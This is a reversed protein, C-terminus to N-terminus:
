WHRCSIIKMFVDCYSHNSASWMGLGIGAFSHVTQGGVAIAAIGTTATVAVATEGHKQVLEQIVYRMLFTKGTGASGTIFANHGDLVHQVARQQEENLENSTITMDDMFGVETQNSGMSDTAATHISSTLKKQEKIVMKPKVISTKPKVVVKSEVVNSDIDVNMCERVIHVLSEGFTKLKVPGIGSVSKLEKLTMPKQSVINELVSNHMVLFPTKHLEDATNSRWICLKHYLAADDQGSNSFFCMQM